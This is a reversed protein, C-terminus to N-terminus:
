KAAEIKQSYVAMMNGPFPPSERGMVRNLIFNPMDRWPKAYPTGWYPFWLHRVAFGYRDLLRRITAVTFYYLHERPKVQNFGERYFRSSLGGANPTQNLVFWGGTKLVRNVAEVERAPNQLHEIVGRMLVVDYFETELDLESLQGVQVNLGLAERAYRAADESFEIGYKDFSSPLTSLFKGMACGVDLFRGGSGIWPLMRVIEIEYMRQRCEDEAYHGEDFYAQRYFAELATQSPRPNVYVLSCRRCRVLSFSDKPKGWPEVDDAGCLNCNVAVTDLLYPGAGVAPRVVAPSGARETSLGLVQIKLPLRM